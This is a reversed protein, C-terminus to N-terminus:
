FTLQYWGKKLMESVLRGVYEVKLGISSLEDSVAYEDSCAKCARIDMGEDMMEELRKKIVENRVALKQAPGWLILRVDEMWKNKFAHYGYMFSVWQHVEKDGSSLIMFLKGM